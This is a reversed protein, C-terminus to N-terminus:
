RPCSELTCHFEGPREGSANDRHSLSGFQRGFRRLSHTAMPGSEISSADSDLSVLPGELRRQFVDVALRTSHEDDIRQRLLFAFEPLTHLIQSKPQSGPAGYADYLPRPWEQRGTRATDDVAERAPRRVSIVQTINRRGDPRAAERDPRDFSEIDFM